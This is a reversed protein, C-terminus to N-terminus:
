DDDEQQLTKAEDRGNIRFCLGRIAEKLAHAAHTSADFYKTIVDLFRDREAARDKREEKLFHIFWGVVILLAAATGAEPLWAWNNM